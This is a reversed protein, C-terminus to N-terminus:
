FGAIGVTLDVSVLDGPLDFVLHYSPGLRAFFSSESIGVGASLALADYSIRTGTLGALSNSALGLREYEAGAHLELWPTLPLYGRPGLRVSYTALDRGLPLQEPRTVFFATNLTFAVGVHRWRLEQRVHFSAGPDTQEGMQGTFGVLGGGMSFEARMEDTQQAHALDPALLGGVLASAALASSRTRRRWALAALALVLLSAPHVPADGPASACSSGQPPTCRGLECTQGEACQDDRGSLCEVCQGREDDCLWGNSCDQAVVCEIPEVIVVYDLTVSCDTTDCFVDLVLEPDRGLESGVFRDARASGAELDFERTALAPTNPSTPDFSADADESSFSPPSVTVFARTTVSGTNTVEYDVVNRGLTTGRTLQESRACSTENPFCLSGLEVPDSPVSCASVGLALIPWARRM